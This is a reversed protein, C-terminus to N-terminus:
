LVYGYQSTFGTNVSEFGGNVVKETSGNYGTVTYTTTITPSAEPSDLTSDNLSVAPAWRYYGTLGGSASLTTSSGTCITVDASAIITPSSAVELLVTDSYAPPCPGGVTEVRRFYYNGLALPPSAYTNSTAGGIDAFAGNTPSSSQWKYTVGLGTAAVTETFTGPNSGGCAVENSTIKGATVNSINLKISDSTSWCGGSTRARIYYAGSSTATYTTTGILATSTGYPNTGQWYYTIGGPIVGAARTLIDSPPTCSTSTVTPTGPSAPGSGTTVTQTASATLSKTGCNVSWVRYWYNISPNLGTVNYTAVNGVNLQNFGSVFSTFGADTAVDLLYSSANAVSNWYATFSICAVNTAAISTPTTPIAGVVFTQTGSAASSGTPIPTATIDAP